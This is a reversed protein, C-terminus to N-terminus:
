GAPFRFQILVILTAIQRFRDKFISLHLMAYRVFRSIEKLPKVAHVPLIGCAPLKCLRFFDLNHM